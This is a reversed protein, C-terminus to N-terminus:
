FFVVAPGLTMVFLVELLEEVLPLVATDLTNTYFLV